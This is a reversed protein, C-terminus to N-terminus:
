VPASAAAASKGGTPRGAIVDKPDIEVGVGQARSFIPTDALLDNEEGVLQQLSQRTIPNTSSIRSSDGTFSAKKDFSQSSDVQEKLSAEQIM